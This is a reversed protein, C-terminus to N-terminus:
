DMTQRSINCDKKKDLFYTIYGGLIGGLSLLALASIITQLPDTM